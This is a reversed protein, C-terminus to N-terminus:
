KGAVCLLAVVLLASHRFMTAQCLLSFFATRNHPFLVHISTTCPLIHSSELCTFIIPRVFLQSASRSQQTQTFLARGYPSPRPPGSLGGGSTRTSSLPRCASEEAHGHIMPWKLPPPGIHWVLTARQCAFAICPEDLPVCYPVLLCLQLVISSSFFRFSRFM